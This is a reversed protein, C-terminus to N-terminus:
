YGKSAAETQHSWSPLTLMLQVPSMPLKLVPTSTTNGAFVYLTCWCRSSAYWPACSSFAQFAESASGQKEWKATTMTPAVRGSSGTTTFKRSSAVRQSNFSPQRCTQRLPPTERSHSCLFVISCFLDNGKCYCVHTISRQSAIPPIGFHLCIFSCPFTLPRHVYSAGDKGQSNNDWLGSTATTHCSSILIHSRMSLRLLVAMKQDVTSHMLM